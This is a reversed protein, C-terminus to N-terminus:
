VYLSPFRCLSITCLFAFLTLQTVFDLCVDGADGNKPAACLPINSIPLLAAMAQIPFATRHTKHIRRKPFTLITAASSPHLWWQWYCSYQSSRKWSTKGKMGHFHSSQKWLASFVFWAMFRLSHFCNCLLMIQLQQWCRQAPIQFINSLFTKCVM